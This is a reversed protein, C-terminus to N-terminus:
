DGSYGFAKLKETIVGRLKKNNFYVTLVGYNMKKRYTGKGRSPTVIVKQFQSRNAGLEKMWFRLAEDPNMDSFIQLGFRIKSNDVEFFKKLFRVFIKILAPDTNGLRISNRDMRTGEGWYLGLGIGMLEAELLNNPERIKFPDGGPNRKTYIAESITRKRIKYGEMWYSIKHPSFGTKEAVEKMSNGKGVYLDLLMEKPIPGFRSIKREKRKGRITKRGLLSAGNRGEKFRRERRERYKNIAPSRKRFVVNGSSMAHNYWM